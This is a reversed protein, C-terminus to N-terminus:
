CPTLESSRVVSSNELQRQDNSESREHTPAEIPMREPSTNSEKMGDGDLDMPDERLISVEDQPCDEDDQM